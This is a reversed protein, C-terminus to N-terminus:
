YLTDRWLTLTGNTGSYDKLESPNLTEKLSGGEIVMIRDAGIGKMDFPDHTVILMAMEDSLLANLSKFLSCRLELDLSSFPEDLVLLKAGNVLARALAVRQKEGSSLKSVKQKRLATINLTDLLGAIKDKKQGSEGKYVLSINQYVSLNAWLGLDQPIWAVERGVILDRSEYELAINGIDPKELGILLRLLTTKGCGSAGTLIVKEGAKVEFSVEHLVSKGDYSKTVNNVNIM